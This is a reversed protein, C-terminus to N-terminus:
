NKHILGKSQLNEFANIQGQMDNEFFSQLVESWEIQVNLKQLAHADKVYLMTPNLIFEALGEFTKPNILLNQTSCVVMVKGSFGTLLDYHIGVFQFPNTLYVEWPEQSNIKLWQIVKPASRSVSHDYLYNRSHEFLRIKVAIDQLQDENIDPIFYQWTKFQFIKNQLAAKKRRSDDYPQDLGAYMMFKLWKGLTYTEQLGDIPFEFPRFGMNRQLDFLLPNVVVVKGVNKPFLSLYHLAIYSASPYAFLHIQKEGLSEKRWCALDNAHQDINLWKYANSWNNQGSYKVLRSIEKSGKRGHFLVINFRQSLDPPIMTNNLCDDLADSIIVVTEKDPDFGNVFSYGVKIKISKTDHHDVPVMIFRVETGFVPNLYFFLVTLTLIAKM